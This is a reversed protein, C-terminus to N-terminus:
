FEFWNTSYEHRFVTTNNSKVGIVYIKEPVKITIIYLADPRKDLTGKGRPIPMFEVVQVSVDLEVGKKGFEPLESLVVLLSGKEDIRSPSFRRIVRKFKQSIEIWADINENIKKGFLFLGAPGVVTLLSPWDINKFIDVLVSPFDAGLGIDTEITVVDKDLEFLEGALEACYRGEEWKETDYYIDTFILEM